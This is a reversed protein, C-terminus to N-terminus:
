VLVSQTSSSINNCAQVYQLMASASFRRNIRNLGFVLM